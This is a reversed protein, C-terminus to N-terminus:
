GIGYTGKNTGDVTFSGFVKYGTTEGIFEIESISTSVDPTATVSAITKDIEAVACGPNFTRRVHWGTITLDSTNVDVTWPLGLAESTVVTCGALNGFGTCGNTKYKVIEGMSGGKTTLTAHIECSMGGSGTEFLEGGSLGIEILSTINVGHDKWVSASASSTSVSASMAIAVALGALLLRKDIKM